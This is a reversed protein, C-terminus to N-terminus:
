LLTNTILVMVESVIRACLPSLYVTLRSISESVVKWHLSQLSAWIILDQTRISTPRLRKSLQM